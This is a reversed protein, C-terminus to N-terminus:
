SLFEDTLDLWPILILEGPDFVPRNPIEGMLQPGSNHRDTAVMSGIKTQVM